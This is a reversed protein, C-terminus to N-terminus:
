QGVCEVTGTGKVIWPWRHAITASSSTLGSVVLTLLLVMGAARQCALKLLISEDVSSATPLFALVL